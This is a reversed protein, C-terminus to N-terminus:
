SPENLDLSHKEGIAIKQAVELSFQTWWEKGDPAHYSFTFEQETADYGGSYSGRQYMDDSEIKDWEATTKSEAVIEICIARIDENARVKPPHHMEM